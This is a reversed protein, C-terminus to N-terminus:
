DAALVLHLIDAEREASVVRARMRFAIRNLAPTLHAADPQPVFGAPLQRLDPYFRDPEHGTFLPGALCAAAMLVLLVLAAVAG